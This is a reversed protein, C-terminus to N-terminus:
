ESVEPRRYQTSHTTRSYLIRKIVNCVFRTVQVCICYTDKCVRHDLLSDSMMLDYKFGGTHCILKSYLILVLINNETHGLKHCWWNSHKISGAVNTFDIYIVFVHNFVHFPSFYIYILSNKKCLDGYPNPISNV